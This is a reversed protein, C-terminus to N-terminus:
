TVVYRVRSDVLCLHLSSVYEHVNLSRSGGLIAPGKLLQANRGICKQSAFKMLNNM